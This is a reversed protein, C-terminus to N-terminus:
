GTLCECARCASLFEPFWAKEEDAVRFENVEWPACTRQVHHPGAHCVPVHNCYQPCRHLVGAAALGAQPSCNRSPPGVTRPVQALVLARVGVPPGHRHEM